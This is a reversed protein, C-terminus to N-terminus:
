FPNKMLERVFFDKINKPKKIPTKPKIKILGFLESFTFLVMFSRVHRVFSGPM